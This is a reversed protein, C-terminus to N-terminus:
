GGADPARDVGGDPDSGGTSECGDPLEPPTAVGALRARAGGEFALGLSLAECVVGPGGEGPLRTVDASEELSSQLLSYETSSPCVGFARSTALIDDMSWRGGVTMGEVAQLDDTLDVALVLGTLRVVMAREPGSLLLRAPGDLRLVVTGGTVYAEEDVAKPLEPDGDLFGDARAWYGDTGDWRPAELPEGGPGVVTGDVVEGEPAGGGAAAAAGAVSQLLTAQVAADDAEGNWERLRVLVTGRGARQEARVVEELRGDFALDIIPLINHGISNDVGGKGDAEVAGTPPSCSTEPDDSGRTSRDDLDFGIETWRSDQELVPDRIAFLAETSDRPDTGDRSPPPPPHRLGSGDGGDPAGGGDATGGGDDGEDGPSHSTGCGMAAVFAAACAALRLARAM